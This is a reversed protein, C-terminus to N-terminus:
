KAALIFTLTERSPVFVDVATTRSSVAESVNFILRRDTSQPAPEVYFHLASVDAGIDLKYVRKPTGAPLDIALSARGFYHIGQGVCAPGETALLQLVYVPQWPERLAITSAANPLSDASGASAHIKTQPCASNAPYTIHAMFGSPSPVDLATGAKILDADSTQPDGAAAILAAFILVPLM